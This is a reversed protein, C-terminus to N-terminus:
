NQWSKSYTAFQRENMGYMSVCNQKRINNVMSLYNKRSNPGHQGLPAYPRCAIEKGTGQYIGRFKHLLSLYSALDIYRSTFM